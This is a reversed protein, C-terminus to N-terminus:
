GGEFASLLDGPTLGDRALRRKLKLRADHLLKYLANREMGMRQAVVELPVEGGMVAQIATKQRPTLEERLIRSLQELLDRQEAAREPSADRAVLLAEEASGADSELLNELSVDQWQKRRLDTLAIRIAIKHAWTTFRSRGEFTDLHDLIRLLAEQATEEVLAELAAPEQGFWDKLGMRLGKLLIARLEELAQNREAGPSRL